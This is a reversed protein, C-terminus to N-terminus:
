RSPPATTDRVVLEPKMVHTKFDVSEGNILQLLLETAKSGIEVVPQHITTLLRHVADSIPNNDFGIVSLTQPVTHGMQEAARIAKSAIFDNAAFIATPPDSLKLLREAHRFTDISEYGSEVIYEDRVQIGAQRLTTTFARQRTQASTQSMTGTLHAIKKHGLSILHETAIMAGHYNDTDVTPIGLKEADAGVGVLPVHLENLANVMDTDVSPAIILLGDTKRALVGAESEERNQWVQTFVIVNYGHQEATTLAGDVVRLSYPNNILRRGPFKNSILGIMETKRSVLSRALANPRYRLKEIAAQVRERTEPKV